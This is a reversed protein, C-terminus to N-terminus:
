ISLSEFWSRLIQTYAPALEEDGLYDGGLAPWHGCGPVDAITVDTNGSAAAARRWVVKSLDAPSNEEHEGWILLTPCTVKAYIPEPDFDMDDWSPIPDPLEPPLFAHEFWPRKAAQALLAAGVAPDGGTRILDEIALRLELLEDRATQHFGNLRLLEDTYFRMQIAPSVGSNGLLVLFAVDTTRSAAAAAAWSGQSFGYVGVPRDIIAALATRATLADDAQLEFPVDGGDESPRRDFSLVAFGLPTVTDALHTFIQQERQPLGAGHLPIVGGRVPGDPMYLLGPRGLGDITIERTQM